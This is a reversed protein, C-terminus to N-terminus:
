FLTMLTAVLGICSVNKYFSFNPCMPLREFDKWQSPCSLTGGEDFHGVDQGKEM